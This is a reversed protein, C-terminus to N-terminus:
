PQMVALLALETDGDDFQEVKEVFSYGRGPVTTIFIQEGSIKRIASIQVTLNNEEVFQGPWVRELLVDKSLVSGRNEILHELLDFAKPYLSVPEGSRL